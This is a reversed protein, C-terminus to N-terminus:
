RQSLWGDLAEQVIESLERNTIEIAELTTRRIYVTLRLFNPDSSKGRRKGSHTVSQTVPQGVSRTASHHVEESATTDLQNRVLAKFPSLKEAM